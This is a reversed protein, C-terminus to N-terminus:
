FLKPNMWQYEWEKMVKEENYNILMLFFTNQHIVTVLKRKVHLVFHCDHISKSEVGPQHPRMSPNKMHIQMNEFCM